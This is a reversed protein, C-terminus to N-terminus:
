LMADCPFLTALSIGGTQHCTGMMGTTSCEGKTIATDEFGIQM